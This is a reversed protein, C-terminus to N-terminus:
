DMLMPFCVILGALSLYPEGIVFGIIYAMIGITMIKLKM